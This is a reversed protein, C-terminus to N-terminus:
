EPHEVADLVSVRAERVFVLHDISTLSGTFALPRPASFSRAAYAITYRVLVAM